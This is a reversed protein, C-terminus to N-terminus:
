PPAQAKNRLIWRRLESVDYLVRAGIPVYGIKGDKRLQWLTRSGIGLLAAAERENLLMKEPL